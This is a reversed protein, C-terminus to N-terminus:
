NKDTGNNRNELGIHKSCPTCTVEEINKTSLVFLGQANCTTRAGEGYHVKKVRYCRSARNHTKGKTSMDDGATKSIQYKERIMKRWNTLKGEECSNEFLFQTWEDAYEADSNEKVWEKGCEPHSHRSFMAGDFKGSEHDVVTGVEIKLDCLFCKTPKRTKVTKSNYMEIEM